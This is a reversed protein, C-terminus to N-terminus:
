GPCDPPQSLHFVMVKDGNLYDALARKALRECVSFFLM